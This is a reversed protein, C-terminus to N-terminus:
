IRAFGTTLSAPRNTVAYEGRGVAPSASRWSDVIGSYTLGNAYDNRGVPNTRWRDPHISFTSARSSGRCRCHRNQIPPLRYDSAASIPLIARMHRGKWMCRKVCHFCIVGTQSFDEAGTPM